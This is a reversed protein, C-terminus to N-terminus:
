CLTAPNRATLLNTIAKLAGEDVSLSLMLSRTKASLPCVALGTVDTFMPHVLIQQRAQVEIRQMYVTCPLHGSNSSMDVLQPEVWRFKNIESGLPM